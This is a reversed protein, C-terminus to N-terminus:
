QKRSEAKQKRGEATQKRTTGSGQLEGDLVERVRAALTEAAFPKEIFAAGSHAINRRAVEDRAYGSMLLVRIGPRRTAIRESLEGGSMEPMVLDTVVAHIPEEYETCLALAERGNAAELVLYGYTRLARCAVHRLAADDEVVMVTENGVLRRPGNQKEAPGDEVAANALPLYVNFVAGHGPESCAWIYGCSQRVVGYVTALGLGTGVGPAKTTFFPEFIREKVEPTMGVGTDTVSLMVYSGPVVALETHRGLSTDDLEANSTRITLTGGQPMADRANVCLNVIMQELQGVDAEVPGAAPDLEIVIEIDERVLRRLLKELGSVVGNLTVLQPRLVQQRSFALLQRTLAAARKAASGIQQVDAHLQSEEPLEGLLLGSYSTIVTLLNNFDHAVGGALQGVAEMKESQRLRTELRLRETIDGLVVAFGRVSGDAHRLAAVSISVDVLSGDKRRRQSEVNMIVKGAVSDARLQAHEDLREEPIVARYSKGVVDEASWGFIREASPNWRVIRLELDLVIVGLPSDDVVARLVDAQDRLAAEARLRETVDLVIVLEANRHGDFEIGHSVIEVNMLTGDRRRHRWGGARHLGNMSATVADRLAPVDDSPRIDALTMSLFEEESYGYARVASQNVALFRLTDRDYVWVPMPNADFLLRYRTESRSAAARSREAERLAAALEENAVELETAQEELEEALSHAERSQAELEIAQQRLQENLLELERRREEAIRRAATEAALRRWPEGGGGGGREAHADTDASADADPGATTRSHAPDRGKSATM